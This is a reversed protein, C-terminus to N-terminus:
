GTFPPLNQPKSICFNLTRQEEWSFLKIKFSRRLDNEEQIQKSCPVCIERLNEKCLTLKQVRPAEQLNGVKTKSPGWKPHPSSKEEKGVM